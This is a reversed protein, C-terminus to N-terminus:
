IIDNKSIVYLYVALIIEQHFLLDYNLIKEKNNKVNQLLVYIEKIKEQKDLISKLDNNVKIKKLKKILMFNYKKIKHVKSEDLKFIEGCKETINSFIEEKKNTVKRDKLFENLFQEEKINGYLIKIIKYFNNYNNIYNKHLHEQYFTFIKGDYKGLAKMMDNFGFEINRRASDKNFGLFSGIDNNPTIYKVKINKDKVKQKIGIAKLDIAIIETAGLEVALNIPLNDFFGGDIFNDNDIKKKKFFPYCTASAMIYKSLQGKPIIDKKIITPKLKSLNYTVLGFNIKSKFFKKEEVNKYILQELKNVSSGGKFLFSKLYHKILGKKTTEEVDDLIKEHNIREWIRIAKHFDDQVMMVGNLAGVSTGTVIDFKINNKRLAKWVGIQYSGKAGGGSLVIALM